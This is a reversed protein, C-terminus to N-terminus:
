PARSLLSAVAERATARIAADGSALAHTEWDLVQRTAAVLLKVRVVTGNVSGYVIREVNGIQAIKALCDVSRQDCDAQIAADVADRSTDRTKITAYELFATRLEMTVKRAPATDTPALGTLGLVEVTFPTKIVPKTIPRAHDVRDTTSSGSCALALCLLARTVFAQSEM